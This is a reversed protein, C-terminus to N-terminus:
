AKLRLCIDIVRDKINPYWWREWLIALEEKKQQDSMEPKLRQKAWEVLAEEALTLRDHAEVRGLAFELETVKDAWEEISMENRNRKEDYPKTSERWKRDVKDFALRAEIYQRQVKNM